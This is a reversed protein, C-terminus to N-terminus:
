TCQYPVKKFNKILNKLLSKKVGTNHDKRIMKTVEEFDTFVKIQIKTMVEADSKLLTQSNIQTIHLVLKSYLQKHILIKLLSIKFLVQLHVFFYKLPLIM